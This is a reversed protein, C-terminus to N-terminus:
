ANYITFIVKEKDKMIAFLKNLAKRSGTIGQEDGFKYYEMGVGICGQVDDAKNAVHIRILSRGPVKNIGLGRGNMNGATQTDVWELEYTGQSICSVNPKNNLWPREVTPFLPIGNVM